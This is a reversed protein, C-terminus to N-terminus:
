DGVLNTITVVDEETIWIQLTNATAVITDDYLQIALVPIPTTAKDDWVCNQALLLKNKRMATRVRAYIGTITQPTEGKILDLGKCDVLIYGGKTM